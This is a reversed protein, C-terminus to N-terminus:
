KLATSGSCAASCRRLISGFAHDDSSPQILAASDDGRQNHQNEKYNQQSSDIQRPMWQKSKCSFCQHDFVREFFRVGDDHQAVIIKISVTCCARRFEKPLIKRWHHHRASYAKPWIRSNSLEHHVIQDLPANWPIANDWKWLVCVASQFFGLSQSFQHLLFVPFIHNDYSRIIMRPSRFINKRSNKRTSNHNTDGARTVSIEIRSVPILMALCHLPKRM